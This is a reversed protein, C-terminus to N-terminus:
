QEKSSRLSAVIFYVAPTAIIAGGLVASSPNIMRGRHSSYRTSDWTDGNRLAVLGMVLIGVGLLAVFTAIIWKM